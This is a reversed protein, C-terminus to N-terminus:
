SIFDMNPMMIHSGMALCTIPDLLSVLVIIRSFSCLILDVKFPSDNYAYHM